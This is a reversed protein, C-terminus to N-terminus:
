YFEVLISRNGKLTSFNPPPMLKKEGLMEEEEEQDIRDDKKLVNFVPFIKWCFLVSVGWAMLLHFFMRSDTFVKVSNSVHKFIDSASVYDYVDMIRM